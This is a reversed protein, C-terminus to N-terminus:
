FEDDVHSSIRFKLTERLGLNHLLFMPRSMLNTYSFRAGSRGKLLFATGEEAGGIICQYYTTASGKGKLFPTTRRLVERDHHVLLLARPLFHFLSTRM